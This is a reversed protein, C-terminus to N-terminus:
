RNAKFFSEAFGIPTVGRFESRSMEIPKGVCNHHWDEMHSSEPLIPDIPNRKPNNFYGWLYTKKRYPDGFEFPDFKLVPHGLFKVLMGKPNELCWFRFNDSKLRAEWIIELCAKVIKFGSKLDRPESCGNRALSFMQCPPAALIGYVNEPVSYNLVDYEPLTILRVDYNNKKYPMSWSGTGGCLDLIIKESNEMSKFLEYSM